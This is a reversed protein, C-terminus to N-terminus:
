PSSLKSLRSSTDTPSVDLEHEDLHNSKDVYTDIVAMSQADLVKIMGHEVMPKFSIDLQILILLMGCMSRLRFKSEELWEHHHEDEPLTFPKSDGVGLVFVDKPPHYCMVQVDQGM